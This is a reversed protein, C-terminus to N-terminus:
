VTPGVLNPRRRRRIPLGNKVVTEVLNTGFRYPIAAPHTARLLICDAKKGAEITGISDLLGLAAAANRTAGLIAEPLTLGELSCALSLVVSMSETFSSGPNCDTALAIPLANRRMREVDAFARKALGIATGPLLIAITGSRAMQACGEETVALLHDASVAGVEAALEGGGISVFEEAHLKPLLGHRKGAELIARSEEIEFVGKECFVDCFRALGRARPIMEDIVLRVYDRTRGEYEEPIEHAGLFTPVIEIPHAENLQAMLRLARIEQDTTLGYGSKGEVTTTGYALFSDLRRRGADLLEEDSAARFARVTKRIGGGRRRIELYDVGEVRMAYEDERTGVFLFHTHPDIFGPLVLRGRGSLTKTKPTISVRSEVDATTGVAVFKGRRIAIAGNEVIGLDGWAPNSLPGPKGGAATVLCAINRILLECREKM